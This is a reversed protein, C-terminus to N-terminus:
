HKTGSWSADDVTVDLTPPTKGRNLLFVEAGGANQITDMTRTLKATFPPLRAYDSSVRVTNPGTKIVTIEVDSQSAGRADSIVAGQYGGQALDALDPKPRVQQAAAGGALLGTLAVALALNRLRRM